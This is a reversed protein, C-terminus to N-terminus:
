FSYVVAFVPGEIKEPGADQEENRRVHQSRYGATATIGHGMACGVAVDLNLGHVSYAESTYTEVTGDPYHVLEESRVRLPGYLFTGSLFFRDDKFPRLLANVGFTPGRFTDSQDVTLTETGSTYRLLIPVHVTKYGVFPRLFGLVRYSLAVDVDEREQTAKVSFPVAPEGALLLGETSGGGQLYTVTLGWERYGLGLVPGHLLTYGQEPILADGSTKEFWARYGFSVVFPRAAPPNEEAGAPLSGTLVLLLGTIGARELCSPFRM